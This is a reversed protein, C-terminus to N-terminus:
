AIQWRMFHMTVLSKPDQNRISSRHESIRTKLERRMKGVYALGWPHKFLYVANKTACTIIVKEFTDFTEQWLITSHTSPQIHPFATVHSFEHLNSMLCAAANETFQLSKIAYAPLGALLSNCYDLHPIVLAWILVQAAEQKNYYVGSVWTM